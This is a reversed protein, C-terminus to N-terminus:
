TSKNLDNFSISIMEQEWLSFGGEKHKHVIYTLTIDGGVDVKHKGIITTKNLLELNLNEDIKRPVTIAAVVQEICNFILLERFGRETNITWKVGDVEELFLQFPLNSKDFASNKTLELM